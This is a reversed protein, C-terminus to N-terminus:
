GCLIPESAPGQGLTNWATIRVTWGPDVPATTDTTREVQLATGIETGGPGPPAPESERTIFYEVIPTGRGDVTWSATCGNSGGPGLSVVPTGPLTPAPDTPLYTPPAVVRGTPVEATPVSTTTASEIRAAEVESPLKPAESRALAARERESRTGRTAVILVAAALLITLVAASLLLAVRQGPAGDRERDRSGAGATANDPEELPM